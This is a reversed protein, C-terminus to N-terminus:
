FYFGTSVVSGQKEYSEFDSPAPLLDGKLHLALFKSITQISLHYNVAGAINLYKIRAKMIIFANLRPYGWFGEKKASVIHRKVVQRRL